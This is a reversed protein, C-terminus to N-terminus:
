NFKILKEVWSQYDTVNFSELPFIMINNKTVYHHSKKLNNVDEYFILNNSKDFIFIVYPIKLIDSFYCKLDFQSQNLGHGDFDCNGGKTFTRLTKVEFMITKGNFNALSDVQTNPISNNWLTDRFMKEAQVGEKFIDVKFDNM